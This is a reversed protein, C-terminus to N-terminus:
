IEHFVATRVWALVRLITQPQKIFAILDFASGARGAGFSGAGDMRESASSVAAAAATRYDASSSLLPSSLAHVLAQGTM